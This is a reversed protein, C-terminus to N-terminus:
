RCCSRTTARARGPHPEPLLTCRRARHDAGAVARPRLGLHVARGAPVDRAAGARVQESGGPITLWDHVVAVRPFRARLEDLVRADQARATPGGTPVSALSCAGGGPIMAGIASVRWAQVAAVDHADAEGVPVGLQPGVLVVQHRAQRALVAHQEDLREAQAPRLEGPAVERPDRAPQPAPERRRARGVPQVHERRQHQRQVRM